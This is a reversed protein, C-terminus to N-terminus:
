CFSFVTDGIHEMVCCVAVVERWGPALDSPSCMVSCLATPCTVLSVGLAIIRMPGLAFFWSLSIPYVM